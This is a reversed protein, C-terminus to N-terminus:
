DMIKTARADRLVATPAQDFRSCNDVVYQRSPSLQSSHNGDGPDLLTLGTGDLHVCYLHNYYVNEGPERANGRFYLLRNKADVEVIASARFGGASIPNKLKGARDDASYHGWKSGEAWWIM